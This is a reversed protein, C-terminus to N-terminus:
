ILEEACDWAERAGDDNLSTEAQTKGGDPWDSFEVAFGSVALVLGGMGEYEGEENLMSTAFVAIEDDGDLAPGELDGAVFWILEFDDSRVAWVNRLSAGSDEILGSEIAEVVEADVPICRESAPNSSPTAPPTGQAFLLPILVVTFLLRM